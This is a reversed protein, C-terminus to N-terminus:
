FFHIKEWVSYESRPKEERTEESIMEIEGGIWDWVKKREKKLVFLGIFFLCDYCFLASFLFLFSMLCFYLFLVLFVCACSMCVHVCVCLVWSFVFVMISLCFLTLTFFVVVNLENQTPWPSSPTHTPPDGQTHSTYGKGKHSTTQYVARPKSIPAWTWKGEWPHSEM